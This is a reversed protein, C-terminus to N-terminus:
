EKVHFISGYGYGGGGPTTGDFYRDLSILGSGPYAYSVFSCLVRESGDTSLRFVTGDGNEGGYTTTSYLDGNRDMLLPAEPDAGDTGGTFSYMVTETGDRALKFVTGAGSAGGSLTTGYLNGATDMIVAADPSGGDDGGTFAHLVTETGDTALKFVTGFPSGGGQSTTGYLNGDKDRLLSAAPYAGDSYGFSHLVTETGDPALRFVIGYGGNGGGYYTTGYLNDKKDVILSALPYVGDPGTFSLLVSETGDAAVRFVTGCGGNCISQSEGGYRTTGYLSGDKDMVLGAGPELGDGSGGFSHLLTLKRVPTIEFVTGSGSTGGAGTTGYLDGKSDAILAGAPGSGDNGGKFSYFTVKRYGANAENAISAFALAGVLIHGIICSMRFM